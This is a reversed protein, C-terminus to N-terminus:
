NLEAHGHAWSFITAEDDCMLFILVHCLGPWHFIFHCSRPLTQKGSKFVVGEERGGTGEEERPLHSLPGAAM